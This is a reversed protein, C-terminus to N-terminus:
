LALPSRWGLEESCSVVVAKPLVSGLIRPEKRQKTFVNGVAVAFGKYTV